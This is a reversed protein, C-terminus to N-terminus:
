LKFSLYIFVAAFAGLSFPLLWLRAFSAIEAHEPDRPDYWVRVSTGPRYGRHFTAVESYFSIVRGDRSTFEVAPRFRRDGKRSVEEDLRLVKGSAASWTVCRRLSRFGVGGAALALVSGVIFPTIEM